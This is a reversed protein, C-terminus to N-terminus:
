TYGPFATHVPKLINEVSQQQLKQYYQPRNICINFYQKYIVTYHAKLVWSHSTAGLTHLLAWSHLLPKPFALQNTASESGDRWQM